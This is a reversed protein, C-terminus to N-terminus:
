KIQVDISDLDDIDNDKVLTGPNLPEGDFLLHITADRPISRAKAFTSMIRSIQTNPKVIIKFEELDPSRLTLRVRQPNDDDDAPKEEEDEMSGEQAQRKQAELIEETVAEMHVKIEEDEEDEDGMFLQDNEREQLDLSKCTAVDFLKIGKWMLFVTATMEKSFGQRRCWALRVDKLRQSLKRQVILPKTNKLDSTIFIQVVTEKQPVEGDNKGPPPFSTDPSKAPAGNDSVDNPLSPEKQLRALNQQARERAMRALEPFEEDEVLSDDDLESKPEEIAPSPVPTIRAESEEAELDIVAANDPLPLTTPPATFEQPPSGQASTARSVQVVDEEKGPGDSSVDGLTDPSVVDSTTLDISHSAQPEDSESGSIRRRKTDRLEGGGDGGEPSKPRRRHRRREKSKAAVIDTYSHDALRYFDTRTLSEAPAAWKPKNFFSKKPVNSGASDTTQSNLTM